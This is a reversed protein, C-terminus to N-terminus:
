HDIAAGAQDGGAELLRFRGNLALPADRRVGAGRHAPARAGVVKLSRRRKKEGLQFKDHPHNSATTPRGPSFPAVLIM